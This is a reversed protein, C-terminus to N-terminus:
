AVGYRIHSNGGRFEIYGSVRRDGIRRRKGVRVWRCCGRARKVLLLLGANGPLNGDQDVQELVSTARPTSRRTVVARLIEIAVETRLQRRGPM